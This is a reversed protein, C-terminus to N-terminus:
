DGYSFKNALTKSFSWALSAAFLGVLIHILFYLSIIWFRLDADIVLTHAIRDFIPANYIDLWQSFGFSKSFISHFSVYVLLIGGAAIFSIFRVRLILFVFEAILAEIMIARTPCLAINYNSFLKMSAAILGMFLITGPSQAFYRGTFAIIIAIATLVVGTIPLRFGKLFPSLYIESLGWLIGFIITIIINGSTYLSKQVIKSNENIIM